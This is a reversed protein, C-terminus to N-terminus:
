RCGIYSCCCVRSHTAKLPKLAPRARKYPLRTFPFICTICTAAWLAIATVWLCVVHSLDIICWAVSACRRAVAMTSSHIEGQFLDGPSAQGFTNTESIIYFQHEVMLFSIQTSCHLAIIESREVQEPVDTQRSSPTQSPIAPTSYFNYVLNKVIM